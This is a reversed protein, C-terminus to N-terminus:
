SYKELSAKLHALSLPVKRSEASPKLPKDPQPHLPSDIFPQFGRIEKLQQSLAEKDRNTKNLTEEKECLEKTIQKLKGRFEELDATREQKLTTYQQKEAKLIDLLAELDSETKEGYGEYDRRMAALETRALDLERGLAEREETRAAQLEETHQSQLATVETDLRQLVEASNRQLASVAAELQALESKQKEEINAEESKLRSEFEQSELRSCELAQTISQLEQQLTTNEAALRTQEQQFNAVKQLFSAIEQNKEAIETKLRSVTTQLKGLKGEYLVSKAELSENLERECQVKAREATRVMEEKATLALHHSKQAGQQWREVGELAEAMQKGLFKKFESLNSLLVRQISTLRVQYESALAKTAKRARARFQDFARKTGALNAVLSENGTQFRKLDANNKAITVQAAKLDELQKLVTAEKAALVCRAERSEQEWKAEELRTKQKLEETSKMHNEQLTRKEERATQLEERLRQIEEAQKRSLSQERELAAQSATAEEMGGLRLSHFQQQYDSERTNMDTELSRIREKLAATQEEMIKRRTTEEEYMAKLKSLHTSSEELHRLLAKKHTDTERLDATLATLKSTLTEVRENAYELERESKRRAGSAVEEREEAAKVRQGLRVLEGEYEGKLASVKKGWEAIIEAEGARREAMWLSKVKSVEEALVAEHRGVRIYDKEVAAARTELVRRLDAETGKLKNVQANLDENSAKLRQSEEHLATVRSKGQTHIESLKQVSSTEVDGCKRQWEEKVQLLDSRMQDVDRQYNEETAQLATSLGSAESELAQIKVKQEVIKKKFLTSKAKYQSQLTELAQRAALQEGELTSKFEHSYALYKERLEERERAYSAVTNELAAIAERARALQESPDPAQPLSQQSELLQYARKLGVLEQTVKSYRGHEAELEKRLTDAETAKVKLSRETQDLLAKLQEAEMRNQKLASTSETSLRQFQQTTSTAQSRLSQEASQSLQLQGELSSLLSQTQASDRELRQKQVQMGALEKILRDITEERERGVKDLALERLRAKVFQASAPDEQMTKLVEDQKIDEIVARLRETLGALREEYRAQIVQLRPDSEEQM